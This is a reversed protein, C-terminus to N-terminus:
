LSSSSSGTTVPLVLRQRQDLVAPHDPPDAEPHKGGLAESLDDEAGHRGILLDLHPWAGGETSNNRIPPNQSTLWATTSLTVAGVQHVVQLLVVDLVVDEVEEGVCVLVGDSVEFLLDSGTCWKSNVCVCARAHM